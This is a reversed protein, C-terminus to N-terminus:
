CHSSFYSIRVYATQKLKKMELSKSPILTKWKGQKLTFCLEKGDAATWWYRNGEKALTIM